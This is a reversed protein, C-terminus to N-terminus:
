GNLQSYGNVGSNLYLRLRITFEKKSALVFGKETNIEDNSLVTL